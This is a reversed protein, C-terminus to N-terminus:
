GVRLLERRMEDWDLVPDSPDRLREIAVSLDDFDELYQEIAQRVVEARSCKLAAAAEGLAIALEDPLRVTIQTSM